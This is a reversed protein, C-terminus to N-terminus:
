LGLASLDFGGLLDGFADGIIPGVVAAGVAGIAVTGITQGMGRPIGEACNGVFSFMMGSTAVLSMLKMMKRRKRM